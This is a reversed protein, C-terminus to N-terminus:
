KTHDRGQARWKGDPEQRFADNRYIAAYIRKMDRADNGSGVWGLARIAAMMERLNMPGKATLAETAYGGTNSRTRGAGNAPEAPKATAPADAKGSVRLIIARMGELDQKLKVLAWYEKMEVELKALAAEVGALTYPGEFTTKPKMVPEGLYYLIV